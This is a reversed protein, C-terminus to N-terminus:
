HKFFNSGERIAMFIAGAGGIVGAFWLFTKRAGTINTYAEIVPEMAKANKEQGAAVADIRSSLAAHAATQQASLNDLRSVIDGNTIRSAM